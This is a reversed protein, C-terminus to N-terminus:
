HFVVFGLSVLAAAVVMGTMFVILLDRQIPDLHGPFIEKGFAKM